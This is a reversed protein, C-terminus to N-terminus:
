GHALVGIWTAVALVRAVGALDLGALHGLTLGAVVGALTSLALAVLSQRFTRRETHRLLRILRSPRRSAARARAM